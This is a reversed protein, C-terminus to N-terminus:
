VCDLIINKGVLDKEIPSKGNKAGYVDAVMWGAMKLKYEIEDLTYHRFHWPHTEKGWPVLDQNPVSCILRSSKSRFKKLLYADDQVHEITEFSVITQFNDISKFQFIDECSFTIKRQSYHRNAFDITDQCIDIALVAKAKQALIASGYGCGCAADLVYDNENILDRALKYRLV